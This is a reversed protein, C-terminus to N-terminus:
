KAGELMVKEQGSVFGPGDIEDGWYELIGNM